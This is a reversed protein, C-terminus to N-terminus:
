LYVKINPFGVCNVGQAPSPVFDLIYICAHKCFRVMAVKRGTEQLKQIKAVKHSPLVEAYLQSIGVQSAIATATRRNDGTLLIVTMGRRRLASVCLAAEPRVRDAVSISCWIQGDIACLIATRGLNEETILSREMESTLTIGNRNIWERNGALVTYERDDYTMKDVDM